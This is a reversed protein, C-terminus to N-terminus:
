FYCLSVIFKQLESLTAPSCVDHPVSLVFAHPPDNAERDDGAENQNNLISYEEAAAYLYAKRKTVLDLTSQELYIKVLDM